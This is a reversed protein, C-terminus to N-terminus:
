LLRVTETLAPRTLKRGSSLVYLPNEPKLHRSATQVPCNPRSAPGIDVYVGRGLPDTESRRLSLSISGSDLKVCNRSLHSTFKASRLFGVFAPLLASQYLLSEYRALSTSHRCADVLKRIIPMTIPLRPKITETGHYRQIGKMVRKLLWSERNPDELGYELQANRVAQVYVAITCLRVSNALYACFCSLKYDTTPFPEWCCLQCYALYRQEGTSYTRRTSPAM